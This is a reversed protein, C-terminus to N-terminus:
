ARIKTYCPEEQVNRDSGSGRYICCIFILLMNTFLVFLNMSVATGCRRHFIGALIVFIVIIALQIALAVIVLHKEMDQQRQSSTPNPALAVRLANLLEMSSPSSTLYPAYYFVRGLRSPKTIYTLM